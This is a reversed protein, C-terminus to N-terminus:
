PGADGTSPELAEKCACCDEMEVEATELVELDDWALGAHTMGGDYIAQAIKRGLPVGGLDSTDTLIHAPTEVDPGVGDFRWHVGLFVRSVSNEFMASLLNPYHRVHRSRVSGDPDINRGDLEDSVFDFAITDAQEPTVEFFLRVMEFAAAAFTAHGSPYAPFPPTFSPRGIENTRPSGLPKWFPDCRPGVTQTPSGGIMWFSPDYERIGLIPRWLQFHYKYWWAAIGADAMAVNILAFLRASAALKKDLPSIDRQKLIQRVIQNYLRPPTGIQSAGDYAWYLAQITEDPTRQPVPCKAPPAPTGPDASASGKVRVHDLDRDFAATGPNPHPAMPMLSPVSFRAVEGWREGLLGQGLNGPDERHRWYRKLEPASGGKDSGDGDRDDLVAKGVRCGYVWGPAAKNICLSARAAEIVPRFHPYLACLVICAAASVAEGADAATAGGKNPLSPLYPGFGRDLGAIGTGGAPPVLSFFADHMAIHVMALARSSRTPGTQNIANMRGTHDRRNLELAISNWLMVYDHMM